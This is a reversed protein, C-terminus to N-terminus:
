AFKINFQCIDCLTYFVVNALAMMDTNECLNIKCPTRHLASNECWRMESFPKPPTLLMNLPFRACHSFVFEVFNMEHQESCISTGSDILMMILMIGGNTNQFMIPKTPLSEGHHSYQRPSNISHKINLDVPILYQLMM